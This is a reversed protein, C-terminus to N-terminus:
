VRTFLGPILNLLFRVGYAGIIVAIVLHIKLAGLIYLAQGPLTDWFGAAQAWADPVPIAAFFASVTTLLGDWISYVQELVWTKFGEWLGGFWELIKTVYQAITELM